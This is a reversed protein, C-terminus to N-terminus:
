GRTRFPRDPTTPPRTRKLPNPFRWKAGLGPDDFCRFVRPYLSLAVEPQHSAKRPKGVFLGWFINPLLDTLVGMKHTPVTFQRALNPSSILLGVSTEM